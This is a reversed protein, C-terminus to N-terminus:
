KEERGDFRNREDNSGEKLKTDTNTTLQRGTKM